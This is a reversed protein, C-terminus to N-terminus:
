IRTWIGKHRAEHEFSESATNLVAQWTLEPATYFNVPDIKYRELCLNQFAEFVDVLLLVDTVLYTSHYCGLTKKEM